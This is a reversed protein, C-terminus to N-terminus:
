LHLTHPCLALRPPRAVARTSIHVVAQARACVFRRPSGRARRAKGCELEAPPREKTYRESRAIAARSERRPSPFSNISSLYLRDWSEEAATRTKKARARANDGNPKERDTNTSAIPKSPKRRTKESITLRACDITKEPRRPIRTSRPHSAPYQLKSSDLPKPFLGQPVPHHPLDYKESTSFNQAASSFCSPRM